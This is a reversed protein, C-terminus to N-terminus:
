MVVTLQSGERELSVEATRTQGAARVEVAYKGLFGRVSYSGRADTRGKERTWWRNLVLDQYAEANPKASWDARFMAGNPKWHSREWFGWMMFGEVAPHSFVATMFDRTYAGQAREDVTDIDFETIQIAQGFAAFRDLMKLVDDLPTLRPGFHGQMGIGELPAGEDLLYRITRAYHDHHATNRSTLIGYDNIYLKARPDTRRAAHFWDVMSRNGLIDMFDHNSYPENIVDWETLQGRLSDTISAIHNLIVRALEAPQDKAALAAKVSSWRWSPWVLVHGRVDLGAERLWRVTELAAPRRSEDAWQPWKLANELVAKNYLRTIHERYRSVDEPSIGPRTGMFTEVGVASGFGFAHRRMSVAVEAAEVPKGDKDVVRVTLTGKRFKEIREEAGRRWAADPEMGGYQTPTIPLDVPRVSSGYNILEVGGIEIAQQGFGAAFALQAEGERYNRLVSFPFQILAWDSGATAPMNLPHSFRSTGPQFSIEVQAAPTAGESARLHFRALLTDGARLAGPVAAQLRVDASRQIKSLTRLRIMQKFARGPAPVVEMEAQGPTATQLQFAQPNEPGIIVKGGPQACTLFPPLLCVGVAALLAAKAPFKM